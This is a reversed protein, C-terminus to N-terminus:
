KPMRHKSIPKRHGLRARERSCMCPVLPVASNDANATTGNTITTQNSDEGTAMVAITDSSISVTQGFNDNSEANPAKLYAEQAWTTGTRKFM